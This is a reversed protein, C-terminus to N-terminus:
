GMCKWAIGHFLIAKPLTAYSLLLDLLKPDGLWVPGVANNETFQRLQVLRYAAAFSM